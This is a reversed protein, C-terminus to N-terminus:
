RPRPSPAAEIVSTPSPQDLLGSRAAWAVAEARGRVGLKRYIHGSHHMVTKPSLYLKRAIESNTHGAAILRLVERERASLPDPVVAPPLERGLRSAEGDRGAPGDRRKSEEVMRRTRSQVLEVTQSWDANSGAAVAADFHAPGAADRATDILRNYVPVYQAPLQRLITPLFSLLGGHLRAAAWWDTAIDQAILSATVLGVGHQYGIELSETTARAYEEAATTRDGARWALSALLTRTTVAGRRDGFTESIALVEAAREAQVLDPVDPTSLLQAQLARARVRENGGAEAAALAEAAYQRAGSPDGIQDTLLALRLLHEARWWSREAPECQASAQRSLDAARGADGYLRHAYSVHETLRLWRTLDVAPDVSKRLVELENILDSADAATIADARGDLALRIAWARAAVRETAPVDPATHGLWRRGSTFRGRNLWYPGLAAAARVVDAGHDHAALWSLATGLDRAEADIRRYWTSEEASELGRGSV